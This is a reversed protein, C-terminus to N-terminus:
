LTLNGQKEHEFELRIGKYYYYGTIKVRSYGLRELELTFERKALAEIEENNCYKSYLEYLVQTEVKGNADKYGKVSEINGSLLDQIFAYVSSSNRQWLEKYYDSTKQNYFAKRKYAEKFALLSVIIVSEIEDKLTKEFDPIKNTIQNKFEIIVWRNWFPELDEERSQPIVRPLQNTSFIFKAINKFTFGHEYKREGRIYDGGTGEKFLGTEKVIKTPLDARINALKHYLDALAYRNESSLDQLRLTSINEIGLISILYNLYTSKGTDTKGIIMIAKKFDNNPYLTYGIIEFLVLWDEGGWQKFAELTKPCLKNAIQEIDEKTLSEKQIDIDLTKIDHPIKLFVILDPNPKLLSENLSKNKNLFLNWDLIYSKNFALQLPEEEKELHVHTNRKINAIVENIVWRTTKAKLEKNGTENILRQIEGELFKECPVYIGDDYRFIGIEVQNSSETRIFTKIIHKKMITEAIEEYLMKPTIKEPEEIELGIKAEEKELEEYIISALQYAINPLNDGLVTQYGEPLLSEITRKIYNPNIEEIVKTIGEFTITPPSDRVNVELKDLIQKVYERISPNVRPLIEYLKDKLTDNNKNINIQIDKNIQEKINSNPGERSGKEPTNL